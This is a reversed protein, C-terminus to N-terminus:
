FLYFCIVIFIFVGFALLIGVNSYYVLFLFLFFLHM